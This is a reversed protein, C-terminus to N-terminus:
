EFLKGGTFKFPTHLMQNAVVQSSRSNASPADNVVVLNEPNLEDCAVQANLGYTTKDIPNQGGPFLHQDNM